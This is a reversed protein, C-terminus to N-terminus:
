IKHWWGGRQSTPLCISFLELPPFCVSVEQDRRKKYWFPILDLNSCPRVWQWPYQAWCGQRGTWYKKREGQGAEWKWSKGASFCPRARDVCPHYRHVFSSYADNEHAVAWETQHCPHTTDLSAMCLWPLNEQPLDDCFPYLYFRNSFILWSDLFHCERQKLIEM